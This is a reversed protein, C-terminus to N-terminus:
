SSFIAIGTDRTRRQEVVVQKLARRICETGTDGSVFLCLFQAELYM